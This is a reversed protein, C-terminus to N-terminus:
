YATYRRRAATDADSQWTDVWCPVGPEYGSRESM